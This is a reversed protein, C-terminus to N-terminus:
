NSCSRPCRLFALFTTHIFVCVGTVAGTFNAGTITVSTGGSTTGSSPSLSTVTPPPTVYTFLTNAANSGAPTTVVVSATGATGAALTGAAPNAVLPPPSITITATAASSTGAANTATYQFTDTGFYGTTPTYAITTGTAVAHGNSGDTSVAVSTPTNGTTLPINASIANYAVTATVNSATPIVADSYTYGNTSIATGSNTTVVVNVAGAVRAPAIATIQTASNVVYSTAATTAFKVSTVGIFNTGSITVSTGGATAGSNPSASTITPAGAYTYLTNAANAGSPTTVVVSAAGATGAPTTLTLSTDSTVRVTTAAVGGITVGTAGTFNSGSVTVNTVNGGLPGTSPSISTVIPLPQFYTYLTNPANNGGATTVDVSVQGVAHQPTVTTISTSSVVTFTSVPTDGFKVGTAGTFGTGTITVATGGAFTGSTTSIATVTPAPTTVYTFASPATLVSSSATTVAVDTSGAAHAPTTFTISTETVSTPVVTSGGITVATSGTFGTGIVKATTGGAINGSSPSVFAITPSVSAGTDVTMNISDTSGDQATWSCTYTGAAGAQTVFSNFNTISASFDLMFSDAVEVNQGALTGAPLYVSGGQLAFITSSQENISGSYLFGGTMAAFSSCSTPNFKVAPVTFSANTGMFKFIPLNGPKIGTPGTLTTTVTSSPTKITGSATVLFAQTSGVRNVTISVVASAMSSILLLLFAVFCNRLAAIKKM